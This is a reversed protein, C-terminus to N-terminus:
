EIAKWQAYLTLDSFIPTLDNFQGSTVTIVPTTYWGLFEYGDRQVVPLPGYDGSAFYTGYKVTITSPYDSTPYIFNAEADASDNLAFTITYLDEAKTFDILLTWGTDDLRYIKKHQTDMFYDGKVANLSEITAADPKSSGEFWLASRKFEISETEGNSYEVVITYTGNEMNPTMSTIGVGKPITFEIVTDDTYTICVNTQGLEDVEFTTKDKDIGIGDEGKEGQPIYIADDSTSGDSFKLKAYQKGDAEYQNIGVIKLGDPVIFTDKAREEDTYVITIITYNEQDDHISTIKEIGLGDKGDVGAPILYENVTGVEDYYTVTIKIDNTDEVETVDVDKVGEAEEEFFGCGTLTLSLILILLFIKIIKKM